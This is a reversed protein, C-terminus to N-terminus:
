QRPKGMRHWSYQVGMPRQSAKGAPCKLNLEVQGDAPLTWEDSAM